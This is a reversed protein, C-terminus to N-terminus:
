SRSRSALEDVTRVVGEYAQLKGTELACGEVDGHKHYRTATAECAKAQLQVRRAVERLAEVAGDHRAQKIADLLVPRIDVPEDRVLRDAIEQAVDIASRMTTEDSM